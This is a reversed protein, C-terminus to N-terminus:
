RKLNTCGRFMYFSRTLNPLETTFTELNTCDEFMMFGNTLNPLKINFTKLNTCGRFMHSGKTLNPLEINFTKLNTCGRFMHSGKTLNPLEINFTELNICGYFMYSGNVVQELSELESQFLENLFEECNYLKILTKINDKTNEVFQCGNSIYSSVKGTLTDEMEIIFSPKDEFSKEVYHTITKFKM